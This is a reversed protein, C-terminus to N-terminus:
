KPFSLVLVRQMPLRTHRLSSTNVDQAFQCERGRDRFSCQEKLECDSVPHLKRLHGHLIVIQLLLTTLLSLCISSICEIILRYIRKISWKVVSGWSLIYNHASRSSSQLFFLQSTNPFSCDLFIGLFKSHSLFFYFVKNILILIIFGVHHV